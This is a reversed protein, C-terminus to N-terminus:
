RQGNSPSNLPACAFKVVRAQGLLGPALATAGGRDTMGARPLPTNPAGCLLRISSAIDETRLAGEEVTGVMPYKSRVLAPAWPPPGVQCETAWVISKHKKGGEEGWRKKTDVM